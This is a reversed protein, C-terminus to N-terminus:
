THLHLSMQLICHKVIKSDSKLLDIIMKEYIEENQAFKYTKLLKWIKEAKKSRDQLISLVLRNELNDVENPSKNGRPGNIMYRFFKGRIKCSMDLEDSIYNAMKLAYVGNKPDDLSRYM